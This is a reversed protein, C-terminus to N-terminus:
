RGRSVGDRDRQKQLQREWRVAAEHLLKAIQVAGVNAGAAIQAARDPTESM